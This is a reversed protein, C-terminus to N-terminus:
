LWEVDDNRMDLERFTRCNWIANQVVRLLKEADKSLNSPLLEETDIGSQGPNGILLNMM